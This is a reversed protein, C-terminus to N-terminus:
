LKADISYNKNESQLFKRWDPHLNEFSFCTWSRSVRFSLDSQFALSPTFIIKDTRHREQWIKVDGWKEVVNEGSSEPQKDKQACGKLM